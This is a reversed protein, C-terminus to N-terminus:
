AIDDTITVAYGISDNPFTLIKGGTFTVEWERLFDGATSTDTATWDYRVVGGPGDVIVAAANVKTTGDKADRLHFKVSSGTIVQPVDNLTLTESIAPLTDNQKIFFTGAM